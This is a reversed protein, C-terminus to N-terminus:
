SLPLPSFGLGMTENQSTQLVGRPIVLCNCPVSDSHWTQDASYIKAPAVSTM